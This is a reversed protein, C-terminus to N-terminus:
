RRPNAQVTAARRPASKGGHAVAAPPNRPSRAACFADAADTVADAILARREPTGLQLEEERNVISGAELLVAPMQTKRLVILQDYWYVGTEADALQRQRSGMFSETYHPTYHLDRAKLQAGLLRGFELSASRAANEHSIFISHGKFRDSFNFHKGEYEWSQFFRTPVSDHHISLFLDAAARNALAVRKMLGPRSPGATVLMVTRAFGADLLKQKIEKALRLNFAYEPVGRASMAGPVEATHGVDLVLRFQARNCKSTEASTSTEASPTAPVEDSAGFSVSPVPLLLVAVVALRRVCSM